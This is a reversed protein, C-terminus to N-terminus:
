HGAPANDAKLSAARAAADAKSKALKAAAVQALVPQSNLTLVSENHGDVFEVLVQRGAWQTTVQGFSADTRKGPGFLYQAEEALLQRQGDPGHLRASFGVFQDNRFWYTAQVQDTHKGFWGPAPQDERPAYSVYGDLNPFGRAELEPFNSRSEGLRHGPIGDLSDAKAGYASAHAAVKPRSQARPHPSTQGPRAPRAAAVQPGGLSSLSAVALLLATKLPLPAVPPTFRPPLSPLVPM